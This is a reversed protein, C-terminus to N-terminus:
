YPSLLLYFWCSTCGLSYNLNTDFPTLKRKWSPNPVRCAQKDMTAAYIVLHTLFVRQVGTLMHIWARWPQTDMTVHSQRLEQM